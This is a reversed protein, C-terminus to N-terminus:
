APEFRQAARNKRVRGAEFVGGSMAIYVGPPLLQVAAWAFGLNFEADSRSMRAPQMAGVLVITKGTVGSLVEATATMTDTGHTLLIRHAESGVVADRICVRDRDDLDLSDKRMLETLRYGGEIGAQQLMEPVLSAAIQFESSADFYQKDITGGTTFIQIM